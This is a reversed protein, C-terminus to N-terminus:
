KKGIQIEILKCKTSPARYDRTDLNKIYAKTIPIQCGKNKLMHVIIPNNQRNLTTTNSVQWM